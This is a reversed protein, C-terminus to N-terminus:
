EPDVVVKESKKSDAKRLLKKRVTGEPPVPAGVTVALYTKEIHGGQLARLAGDLGRKTKAVLVIGSTDRDIRHVLSPRFAITDLKGGYYDAVAEILSM